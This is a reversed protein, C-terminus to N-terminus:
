ASRAEERQILLKLVESTGEYIQLIRQDRYLKEVLSGQLYGAGGFVQVAASCVWEAMESAFLKAMSAERICSVGTSKLRAAHLMLQRAAEIRTAMESLKFGIAQHEVIAKGFSHRERAYSLAADYAAQAVGVSQAAVGVRSCDLGELILRYGGGVTGLVCEDGVELNELVIQCLDVARHGMKKERRLVTYGPMDPRILFCVLSDKCLAPDVTALLLAAGSTAGQTIYVKHGNIVWRGDRREARTRVKSLDSGAHPESLLLSINHRGRAVPVGFEQMQRETGHKRLADLFPFAAGGLSNAIACDGYAIQEIVLAWSVFDGNAGGLETPLCLSYFGLEGMAHWVTEPVQQSEDWAIAHPVIQQRAFKRAVDRIALQEQTLLADGRSNGHM